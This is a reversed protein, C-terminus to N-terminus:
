PGGGGAKDKDADGPEGPPADPEEPAGDAPKYRDRIKAVGFGVAIATLVGGAGVGLLLFDRRTLGAPESHREGRRKKKRRVLPVLEVDIGPM